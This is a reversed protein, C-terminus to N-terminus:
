LQFLSAEQESFATLGVVTRPLAQRLQSALTSGPLSLVLIPGGPLHRDRLQELLRDTDIRSTGEEIALRELMTQALVPGTVGGIVHIDSGALALVMRDGRQRCWEWTITAALSILHELGDGTGAAAPRLAEVVLTLDDEPPDEFERVMPEGRRASTRWHILRSSDGPRYNRLGHFFTQAAPHRQGKAPPLRDDAGPAQLMARLAGRHLIGLRPLITLERAPGVAEALQVLGLPYGCIIQLPGEWVRGRRPFVVEASLVASGEPVVEAAFRSLRTDDGAQVRIGRIVRRGRNLVHVRWRWPEGAFPPEGDLRHVEVGAFQRRALLYNLLLMVLLLCALLTILNIGKILGTILIGLAISGWFVGERTLPLQQWWRRPAAAPGSSPDPCTPSGRSM